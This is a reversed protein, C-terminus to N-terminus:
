SNNRRTKGNFALVGSPARFRKKSAQKGVVHWRGGRPWQMEDAQQKVGAIETFFLMFYPVIQSWPNQQDLKTVPSKSMLRM